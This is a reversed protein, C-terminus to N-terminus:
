EGRRQATASEDIELGDTLVVDYVNEARERSV